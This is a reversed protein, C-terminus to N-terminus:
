RHGTGNCLFALEIKMTGMVSFFCGRKERGNQAGKAWPALIKAQSIQTQSEYAQLIKNPDM